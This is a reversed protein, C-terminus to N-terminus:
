VYTATKNRKWKKLDKSHVTYSFVAQLM